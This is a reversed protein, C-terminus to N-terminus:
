SFEKTYGLSCYSLIFKSGIEIYRKLVTEIKFCLVTPDMLYFFLLTNVIIKKKLM